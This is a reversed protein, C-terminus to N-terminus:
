EVSDDEEEEEESDEEDVLFEIFKELAINRFEIRRCGELLNQTIEDVNRFALLFGVIVCDKNTVPAAMPWSRSTGRQVNSIVIDIASEANAVSKCLDEIVEKMKAVVPKAAEAINIPQLKADTLDCANCVHSVIASVLAALQNSHTANSFWQTQICDRIADFTIVSGPESCLWRQIATAADDVAEVNNAQDENNVVPQDSCPINGGCKSCVPKSTRHKCQPCERKTAVCAIEKSKEANEHKKCIDVIPPDKLVAGGCKNCTSRSTKHGCESCKRKGVPTELTQMASNWDGNTAIAAHGFNADDAHHLIMYKVFRDASDLASSRAGCGKCLLSMAKHKKNGEVHCSTEPNGCTPCLVFEQIFNLVKAQVQRVDHHGSVYCHSLDKEVRSSASLRQGLFTVVYDVPRGISQCVSEINVLVSKKMKGTGEHKVVVAAMKYRFNPDSSGDMNISSKNTLFAM